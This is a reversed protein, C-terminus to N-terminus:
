PLEGLLGPAPLDPVWVSRRVEPMLAGEWTEPGPVKDGLVTRAERFWLALFRIEETHRLSTAATWAALRRPLIAELVPAAEEAMVKLWRDSFVQAENPTMAYVRGRGLRDAVLVQGPLAEANQNGTLLVSGERCAVLVQFDPSVTVTFVAGHTVLPGAPTLVTLDGQPINPLYFSAHGAFVRFRPLSRALPPEILFASRGTLRVIGDPLLPSHLTIEYESGADTLLWEGATM